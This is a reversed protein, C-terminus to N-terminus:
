ANESGVCGDREWFALQLVQFVACVLTKHALVVFALSGIFALEILCAGLYLFTRCFILVIVLNQCTIANHCSKSVNVTCM